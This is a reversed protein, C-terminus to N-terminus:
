RNEATSPKKAMMFTNVETLSVTGDKDSDIADFNQSVITWGKAENKDLTGDSDKDRKAFQQYAKVEGHSVTGDKDTDIADFHASVDPLAKAEDKDLTGDDDKDAKSFQPQVLSKAKHPLAKIKEKLGPSSDTTTDAAFSSATALALASAFMMALQARKM